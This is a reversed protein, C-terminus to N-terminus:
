DDQRRAKSVAASRLGTDAYKSPDQQFSRQCKDSCFVFTENRYAESHGSALAKKREVSMGCVPDLTMSTQNGGSDHAAVEHKENVTQLASPKMRSESDILFNGSTVVRDGAALGHKVAVRSGFATGLEVPRPEFIGDSTEVYVIKRMGSDLIAQAPVSIGAPAPTRFEVDVFM